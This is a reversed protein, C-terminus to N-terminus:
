KKKAEKKIREWFKRYANYWGLHGILDLPSTKEEIEEEDEPKKEKPYGQETAM